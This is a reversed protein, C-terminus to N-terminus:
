GELLRTLKKKQDADPESASIIGALAGTKDFLLVSSTHDFTYSEGSGNKKRYIKFSKVVASIEEPTGTLGVIRPDFATLYEKLLSPTDREPDITVFYPHFDKAKDGIDNMLKALDMMTTPCFDPCNTYGFFLAYPKGTLSARTVVGGSSAQLTFQGGYDGVAKTQPKGLTVYVLGAFILGVVALTAGRLIATRSPAFRNSSSESM